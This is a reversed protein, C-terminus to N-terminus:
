EAHTEMEDWAPWREVLIRAAYLGEGESSHMPNPALAELLATRLDTRMELGGDRRVREIVVSQWDGGVNLRRQPETVLDSRLNPNL